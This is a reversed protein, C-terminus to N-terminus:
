IDSLQERFDSMNWLHGPCSKYDAFDRHECVNAWPIKFMDMLTRVIDLGIFWMQKPPKELDYNGVFYIGFSRRNMGNQRCHADYDKM